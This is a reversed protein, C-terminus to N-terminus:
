YSSGRKLTCRENDSEGWDIDEGEILGDQNNHPQNNRGALFKSSEALLMDNLDSDDLLDDTVTTNSSNATNSSVTPRSVVSPVGDINFTVMSSFFGMEIQTSAPSNNPTNPATVDTSATTDETLALEFKENMNSEMIITSYLNIM